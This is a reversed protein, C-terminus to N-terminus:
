GPAGEHISDCSADTTPAIRRASVLLMYGASWPIIRDLAAFGRMAPGLAGFTIGSVEKLDSSSVLPGKPTQHAHRGAGRLFAWNLATDLLHSFFRSYTRASTVEFDRRLLERLRAITYGSRVHGHWADTLGIKHRIQPLIASALEHPVNLVLRGGPRLCRAIESILLGDDRLHELLDVVVVIDFSQDFFPLTAGDLEFVREGVMRAIMNTPEPGLDASTWTGGTSRLLWSITGNDSGLDLGTTEPQIRGLAGSIARWKQQKLASAGFLRLQAKCFAEDRASKHHTSDIAPNPTGTM